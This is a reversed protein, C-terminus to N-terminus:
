SNVRALEAAEDSAVRQAATARLAAAKAELATAKAEIYSEIDAPRYITRWRALKFSVPGRDAGRKTQSRMDRLRSDLIGLRRACEASDIFGAPIRTPVPGDLRVARDPRSDSPVKVFGSM